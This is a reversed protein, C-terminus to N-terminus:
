IRFHEPRAANKFDDHGDDNDNDKATDCGPTAVFHMRLNQFVHVMGLDFLPNVVQVLDPGTKVTIREVDIFVVRRLSRQLITRM